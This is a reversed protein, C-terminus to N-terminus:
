FHVLAIFHLDFHNPFFAVVAGVVDINNNHHKYMHKHGNTNHHLHKVFTHGYRESQTILNLFFVMCAHLCFQVMCVGERETERERGRETERERGGEM